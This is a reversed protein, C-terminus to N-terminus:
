GGPLCTILHSVVSRSIRADGQKLDYYILRRRDGQDAITIVIAERGYFYVSLRVGRDIPVISPAGAESLVALACDRVVALPRATDAQLLPERLGAAGQTTACGALLLM